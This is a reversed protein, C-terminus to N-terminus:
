KLLEKVKRKINELQPEKKTKRYENLLDIIEYVKLRENLYPIEKLGGYNDVFMQMLDQYDTEVTLMDTKCSAWLWPTEKYRSLIRFDYDIAGVISREFDILTLKNDNYIFNDFHLDRHILGLKNEKFYINCMELLNIFLDENVNCESILDAIKDKIYKKFDIYPVEVHHFSKIIAIIKKVIDVREDHSLKFWIEYLTKGEVRELIEYYYPVIKKTTDSFYMQPIYPNNKNKKYFEIENEFRPENREDTCIKIIYRDVKYITNTFGADIFEYKKGKLLSNNQVIKKVIEDYNHNARKTLNCLIEYMTGTLELYRNIENITKKVESIALKIEEPDSSCIGLSRELNYKLWGLRGVLNGCITNYREHEIPRTKIYEKIVAAFKSEDFNGSLFGSWCLAMELVERYPNSLSASEWDIVIPQNNNWMVNKPDMDNHCLSVAINSKNFRENARQLLSYYKKYNKLYEEKYSMNDFNPNKVFSEWDYTRSYNVRKNELKLDQCNLSHIQSLIQGVKKCHNITIEKDNLTKGEVFNFIMYYYDDLKTLYEGQISLASSVTIGHSKALNSISESIVFNTYAEKRSMVEPNLVKIAYTGKDTKVKFMKHMLGGSLKSISKVQGFQYTECFKKINM